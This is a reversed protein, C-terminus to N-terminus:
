QIHINHLYLIPSRVFIELKKWRKLLIIKALSSVRMKIKIQKIGLNCREATVIGEVGEVLLGDDGFRYIIVNM